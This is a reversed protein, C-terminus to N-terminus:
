PLSAQFHRLNCKLIGKPGVYFLVSQEQEKLPWNLNCIFILIQSVCLSLCISDDQMTIALDELCYKLLEPDSGDLIKALIMLEGQSPNSLLRETVMPCWTTPPVFYGYIEATLAM